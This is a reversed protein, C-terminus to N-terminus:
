VDTDTLPDFLDRVKQDKPIPGSQSWEPLRHKALAARMMQRSPCRPGFRRRIADMDQGISPRKGIKHFAQVRQKCYKNLEAKSVIERKASSPQVAVSNSPPRAASGAPTEDSAATGVQVLGCVRFLRVANKEILAELGFKAIQRVDYWRVWISRYDGHSYRITGAELDPESAHFDHVRISGDKTEEMWPLPQCGDCGRPLSAGTLRPRAPGSSRADGVRNDILGRALAECVNESIERADQGYRRKIEVHARALPIWTGGIIQHAEDTAM